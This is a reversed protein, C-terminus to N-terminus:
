FGRPGHLRKKAKMPRVMPPKGQPMLDSPGPLQPGIRSSTAPDQLDPAPLEDPGAYLPRYTWRNPGTQASVHGIPQEIRWQQRYGWMCGPVGQWWPEFRDFYPPGYGYGGWGYFQLNLDWQRAILDRRRNENIEDIESAPSFGDTNAEPDLPGAVSTGSICTSGALCATGLLFAALFSRNTM